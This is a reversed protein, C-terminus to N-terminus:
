PPSQSRIKQHFSVSYFGEWFTGLSGPIVFGLRDKLKVSASVSRAM